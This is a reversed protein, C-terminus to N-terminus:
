LFIILCWWLLSGPFVIWLVWTRYLDTWIAVYTGTERYFGRMDNVTIQDLASYVAAHLNAEVLLRMEVM